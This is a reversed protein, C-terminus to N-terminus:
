RGELYDIVDFTAGDQEEDNILDAGAADAAARLLRAANRNTKNLAFAERAQLYRNAIYNGPDLASM